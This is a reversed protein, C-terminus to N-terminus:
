ATRTSLRSRPIAYCVLDWGEENHPRLFLAHDPCWRRLLLPIDWLHDQRHYVCVAVVPSASAITERSGLLADLEAGEIDFKLFTPHEGSVLSDITRMPVEVAAPSLAPAAASSPTGTSEFDLTGTKSGVAVQQCAVKKRIEKPLSDVTHLLRRFNLPDPELALVHAFSARRRVMIQRVTDGDYAGADVFWEDTSWRLLDDPFYQAHRVPQSLAEFDGLARFRVQAVYEKRSPADEWVDFGRRVDERRNLVRSPLDQLYFPLLTDAYKWFLPPFPCVIECGLERLQARSHEFRHPSNAGWITVVFAATSGFERAASEPSRVPVGDVM